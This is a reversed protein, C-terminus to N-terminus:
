DVVITFHCVCISGNTIKTNNPILINMAKLGTRTLNAYGEVTEYTTVGENVQKNSFLVYVMVEYDSPLRSFISHKCLYTLNGNLVIDKLVNRSYFTYVSGWRQIIWRVGESELIQYDRVKKFDNDGKQLGFDRQLTIKEKQGNNVVYVDTGDSFLDNQNSYTIEQKNIDQINKISRVFNESM